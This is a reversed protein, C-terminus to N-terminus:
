IFASRLINNQAMAKEVEQLEQDYAYKSHIYPIETVFRKMLRQFSFGVRTWEM